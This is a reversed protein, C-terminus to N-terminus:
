TERPNTEPMPKARYDASNLLACIRDALCRDTTHPHDSNPPGPPHFVCWESLQPNISM